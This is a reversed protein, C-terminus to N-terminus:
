ETYIDLIYTNPLQGFLERTLLKSIPNSCQGFLERTLLKSM